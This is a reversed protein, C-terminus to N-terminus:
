ASAAQLQPEPSTPQELLDAFLARYHVVAQRLEETNARGERNADALVRASRYHQVVNSHEVSLDAVRQEFHETAYGRARMVAKILDDAAKVADSPDDVFRAQVQSWDNSFRARDAEPLPRLKQQHVRKERAALEREARAVDGHEEVARDYEPGFRDKLVAHRQRSSRKNVLALVVMAAIALLGVLVIWQTTTLM